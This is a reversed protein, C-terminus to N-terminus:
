APAAARTEASAAKEIESLMKNFSRELAIRLVAAIAGGLVPTTGSFTSRWTVATGEPVSSMTISGGDHHLPLNTELILYDMRTPREFATIEENFWILGARLNRVAGLGNSESNGQRSMEASTISGFRTYNPHDSILEFVADIPAALTRHIDIKPM